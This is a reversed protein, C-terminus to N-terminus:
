VSVGVGVCQCMCGGLGGGVCVVGHRCSGGVIFPQGEGYKESSIYWLIRGPMASTNSVTHYLKLPLSIILPPKPSYTGDLHSSLISPVIFWEQVWGLM